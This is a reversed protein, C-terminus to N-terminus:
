EIRSILRNIHIVLYMLEEDNLEVAFRENIYAKM